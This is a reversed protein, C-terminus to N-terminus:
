INKKMKMGVFMVESMYWVKWKGSRDTLMNGEM